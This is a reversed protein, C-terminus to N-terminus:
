LELHCGMTALFHLPPFKFCSSVNCGTLLLSFSRVCVCCESPKRQEQGAWPGLGPFLAMGKQVIWVCGVSMGESWGLGCLDESLPEEWNTRPQTWNM